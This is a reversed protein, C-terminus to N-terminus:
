VGYLWCLSHCRAVWRHFRAFTAFDWGTLWILMNNRIGFLWFIALNAYALYGTRDALYRWVQVSQKPYYINDPFSTINVACLIVNLAIYVAILTTEARSPISGAWMSVTDCRHGFTAPVFFRAQLQTWARRLTSMNGSRSPDADPRAGHQIGIRTLTCLANYSIGISIVVGWFIFM